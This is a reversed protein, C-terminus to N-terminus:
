GVPYSWTASVGVMNLFMTSLTSFARPSTSSRWVLAATMGTTLGDSMCNCCAVAMVPWIPKTVESPSLVPGYM